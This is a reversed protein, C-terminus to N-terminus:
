GLEKLPASRLGPSLQQIAEDNLNCDNLSLIELQSNKLSDGLMGVGAATIQKNCGLNIEAAKILAPM